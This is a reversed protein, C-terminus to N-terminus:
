MKGNLDGQKLSNAIISEKYALWQKDSLAPAIYCRADELAEDTGCAPCIDEGTRRSVAPPESYERGCKPCIAKKERMM